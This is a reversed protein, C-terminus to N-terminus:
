PHAALSNNGWRLLEIRSNLLDELGPAWQLIGLRTCGKEVLRHPLCRLLDEVDNVVAKNRIGRTNSQVRKHPNSLSCAKWYVLAKLSGVSRFTSNMGVKARM